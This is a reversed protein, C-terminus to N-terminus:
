KSLNLYKWEQQKLDQKRSKLPKAPNGVAITYEPISKNVLSLSGIAVGEELTVNPLIISGAGVIVHKKLIVDGSTVNTYESPVMPNTLYAGSYDDNSTYVAVRSSLGSFDEMVVKGNGIISCYVAIHISNGLEIGGEGASIVCFDDIRVNDGISIRSAGYITAKNSILVNEGLHKFNLKNLEKKSLFAM